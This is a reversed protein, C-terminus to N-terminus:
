SRPAHQFRCATFNGGINAKVPICPETSRTLGWYHQVDTLIHPNKDQQYLVYIKNSHAIVYTAKEFLRTGIVGGDDITVFHAADPMLTFIFSIPPDGAAGVITADRADLTTQTSLVAGSYSTRMWDPYKTTLMISLSVVIFLSGPVIPHAFKPSKTKFSLFIALLLPSLTELPMAYRYISFMRLWLLYSALFFVAMACAYKRVSLHQTSSPKSAATMALRFVCGVAGILGALVRGDAFDVETVLDHNPVLWFVPYAIWQLVSHPFFRLDTMMTSSWWPSHFIDNFYPFLPNQYQLTLYFFWWGGSVLVGVTGSVVALLIGRVTRNVILLTVAAAVIFIASTLKFGTALGFLFFGVCLSKNKSDDILYKSFFFLGAITLYTQPIDNFTTGVESILASGSCATIWALRIVWTNIATWQRAQEFLLWLLLWLIAAQGGQIFAVIKPYHLFFHALQYYFFDPAPNFYWQATGGVDMDHRHNFFAFANYIHYNQLDWNADQGLRVSLLGAVVTLALLLVANKVIVHQDFFLKTNKLLNKGFDM